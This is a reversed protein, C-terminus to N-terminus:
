GNITRELSSVYYAIVEIDSKSDYDYCNDEATEVAQQLEKILDQLIKKDM